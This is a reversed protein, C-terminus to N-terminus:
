DLPEGTRAAEVLRDFSEPTLEGTTRAVVRGEDDFAVFFPFASLGIAAAVTSQGDDLLVPATWGERALWEQPPYNPRDPSTATAVTWLDVGEPMPNEALHALLVPVERQCHPCWHALFVIVGAGDEAGIEVASGDFTQGALSPLPEGVAPDVQGAGPFRVLPDGSVEVDGTQDGAIPITEGGVVTTTSEDDGGSAAVIGIVAALVVVGAAVLWVVPVRRTRVPPRAM